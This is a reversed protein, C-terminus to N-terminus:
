EWEGRLLTRELAQTSCFEGARGAARGLECAWYYMYLKGPALKGRGEASSFFQVHERVLGESLQQWDQLVVVPLDAFVADMTSNKTVVVRGLYLAEWARLTDLGNGRPALVASHRLMHRHYHELQGGGGITVFSFPGPPYNSPAPRDPNPLPPPEEEVHLAHHAGGVELMALLPEREARYTGVSWAAFAFRPAALNDLPSRGQLGAVMSGMLTEPRWGHMSFQRPELGIPICVVKRHPLPGGLGCNQTFFAALRPHELYVELAADLTEDGNHVVLVIDRHGAELLPLAGDLLAHVDHCTTFVIVRQQPALRAWVPHSANGMISPLARCEAENDCFFDALARFGDGTIFPFSHRRDKREGTHWPSTARGPRQVHLFHGYTALYTLTLDPDFLATDPRSHLHRIFKGGPRAEGAARAGLFLAGDDRWDVFPTSRPLAPLTTGLPEEPLTFPDHGPPASYPGVPCARPPLFLAGGGVGGGRGGLAAASSAPPPSARGSLSGGGELVGRPPVLVFLIYFALLPASRWLLGRLSVLYSLCHRPQLM